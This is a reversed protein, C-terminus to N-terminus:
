LTVPHLVIDRAHVKVWRPCEGPDGQVWLLVISQGVALAAGGDDDVQLLQGSVQLGDSGWGLGPSPPSHPHLNRGCQFLDELGIEVEHVSFLEPVPGSWRGRGEGLACRFGVWPGDPMDPHLATLTIRMTLTELSLYTAPPLAAAAPRPQCPCRPNENRM